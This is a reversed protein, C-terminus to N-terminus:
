AVEGGEVEELDEVVSGPEQPLWSQDPDFETVDADMWPAPPRPADDEIPPVIEEKSNLALWDAVTLKLDAETLRFPLVAPVVLVGDEAPFM